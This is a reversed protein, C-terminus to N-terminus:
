LGVKENLHQAVDAPAFPARRGSRLIALANEGENFLLDLTSAHAQFPPFLQRYTPHEYHQFVVNVGRGTLIPLDKLLYDASGLPSVYTTAGSLNCIEALLDTRKGQAALESSRVIPTKIGLEEALWRLLGITLEALRLGSSASRLFESLAPYYRDFFPARRYNLEVARLHDRWFEAERIEVDVIRQGLRGRFVVPVTLWLLGTPTKIRNRQQWSQKEFQVTDLLVFKDVQDLLDFYGLWPLYTPQAIAIKAAREPLAHAATDGITSISVESPSVSKGGWIAAFRPRLAEWEEKQIALYVVDHFAGRKWIHKRFVGEQVFGFRRHMLIVGRNFSLVPCCLKEFKLEDFVYNLVAYEAHNGVNQGRVKPSAVYFAWYCRRNMPDIEYLNAVGVDEGDCVIIWYKCTPDKLVRSFWAAHEEPGIVHDTFMFDAVKPLNRWVRITEMDEPRVDRLSIM